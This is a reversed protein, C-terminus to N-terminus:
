YLLHEERLTKFDELPGKWQACITELSDGREIAQRIQKTGAIVDFPNREYEYEYPPEKWRFEKEYM